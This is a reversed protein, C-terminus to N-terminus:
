GARRAGCSVGQKHESGSRRFRYLTGNIYRLTYRKLQNIYNM